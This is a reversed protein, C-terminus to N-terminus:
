SSVTVTDHRSQPSRLAPRRRRPSMSWTQRAVWHRRWRLDQLQLLQLLLAAPCRSQHRHHHLHWLTCWSISLQAAAPEIVSSARRYSSPCWNRAAAPALHSWWWSFTAAVAAMSSSSSSAPYSQLSSCCALLQHRRQRNVSLLLTRRRDCVVDFKDLFPNFDSLWIQFKFDGDKKLDKIKWPWIQYDKACIYM